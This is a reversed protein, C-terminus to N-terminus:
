LLKEARSGMRTQGDRSDLLPRAVQSTDNMPRIHLSDPAGSFDFWKSGSSDGALGENEEQLAPRNGRARQGMKKNKKKQGAFFISQIKAM